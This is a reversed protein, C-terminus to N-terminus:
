DDDESWLESVPWLAEDVAHGFGGQSWDYAFFIPALIKVARGAKGMAKKMFKKGKNRKVSSGRYGLQKQMRKIKEAEKPHSKKYKKYLEDLQEQSLHQLDEDGFPPSPLAGGQRQVPLRQVPEVVPESAMMAGLLAEASEGAVVRDDVADAHREYADGAQGVGGSLSVGARQQVVHAAEHAATHLDPQIGFAVHNGMAYARAGM